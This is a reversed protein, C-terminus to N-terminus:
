TQKILRAKKAWEPSVLVEADGVDEYLLIENLPIKLEEKRVLQLLFL